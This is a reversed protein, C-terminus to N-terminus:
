LSGALNQLTGNVTEGLNAVTGGLGPNDSGGLANGVSDTTAGVTDGTSSVTQGVITRPEPESPGQGPPPSAQVPEQGGTSGGKPNVQPGLSGHAGPARGASGNDSHPKWITVPAAGSGLLKVLNPAQSPTAVPASTPATGISVKGGGGGILSAARPWADFTVAGVLIMFTVFVSAILAGSAGIGVLYTDATRANAQFVPM